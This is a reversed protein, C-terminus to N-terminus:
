SNSKYDIKLLFDKCFDSGLILTHRISPVVLARIIRLRDNIRLPLDIIGTVTQSIGDATFINRQLSPNIKLQLREIISIGSSGIVSQFILM